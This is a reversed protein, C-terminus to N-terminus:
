ATLARLALYRSSYAILKAMLWVLTASYLGVFGLHNLDPVDGVMLVQRYADLIFAMPNYLLVAETMQPELARVDWFLGSTFMLFVMGLSIFMTFDRMLCVLVAGAFSCAVIMLYNVILIPVLWLWHFSPTYGDFALVAFLLAFVASQKYLGEQILAMPFLTKPIDIKGILGANNVISNSAQNVSKSFWVFPLKGCMLFVLFDARQSDLIVNFVIYFVGVYLLPELLWWFYGFFFRSADSKLAMRAQIDVLAFYQKLTM